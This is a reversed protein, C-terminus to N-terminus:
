RNVDDWKAADGFSWLACRSLMQWNGMGVLGRISTSSIHGFVGVKAFRNLVLGAEMRFVHSTQRETLFIAKMAIFVFNLGLVLGIRQSPEM